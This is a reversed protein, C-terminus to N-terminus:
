EVRAGRNTLMTWLSNVSFVIMLLATVPVALYAWGTPFDWTDFPINLRVQFIRMGWVLMVAFFAIQGIQIVVKARRMSAASLKGIFFDMMLHENRGVLVSAGIFVLWIFLFRSVDPLWIWAAGTTYRMTIQVINLTFLTLLLAGAVIQLLDFVKDITRALM